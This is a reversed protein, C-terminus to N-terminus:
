VMLLDHKEYPKSILMRFLDFIKFAYSTILHGILFRDHTKDALEYLVDMNPELKGSEVQSIFAQTRCIKDGLEEQSLAMDDRMAKIYRGVTM